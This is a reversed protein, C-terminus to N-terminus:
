TCWPKHSGSPQALGESVMQMGISRGQRYITRFKLGDKDVESSGAQLTFAGDNLLALLRLKAATGRNKAEPCAPPNIEPTDIDAIRIKVGRVWFTDGDVVCNFHPGDGCFGFSESATAPAPTPSPRPISVPVVPISASPIPAPPEPLSPARMAAVHVPALAPKEAPARPAISATAVRETAILKPKLAPWHDYAVIGGIALAAGAYWPMLSGSASIKGRGSSKRRNGRKAAM